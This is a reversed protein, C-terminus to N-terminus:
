LFYHKCHFPFSFPLVKCKAGMVLQQATVAVTEASKRGMSMDTRRPGVPVTVREERVDVLGARSFYKPLLTEVDPEVRMAQYIRRLLRWVAAAPNHIDNVVGESVDSEMLQIWGGSKVLGILNAVANELQEIRVAGLVFRQHVVDFSDAWDQPWAKTIDQTKYTIADVDNEKEPQSDGSQPPHSPFFSETIDTGIYEHRTGQERQLDKLWRGVTHSDL